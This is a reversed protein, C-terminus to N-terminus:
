VPNEFVQKGLPGSLVQTFGLYLCHNFEFNKTTNKKKAFSLVYM